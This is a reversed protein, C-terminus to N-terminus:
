GAQRRAGLADFLRRALEALTELQRRSLSPEPAPSAGRWGLKRLRRWLEGAVNGADTGHHSAVRRALEEPTWDGVSTNDLAESLRALVEERLVMAPLALNRGAAHAVYRDVHAQWGTEFAAPARTWQGDVRSKDPWLRSFRWAAVVSLGIALLSLVTGDLAGHIADNMSALMRNFRAFPSGEDGTSWDGAPDGVQVFSQTYLHVRDQSPRCTRRILARAFDLDDPLELMNNILVSPDAVAVFYGKGLRGEVVLAAGQSFAYTPPVATSFFAPHNAVLEPVNVSLETALALRAVPLAPNDEYHEAESLDGRLRRIQLTALAADSSGFDDAIVARGGAELFRRLRGADVTTRPYVFWLVDHGDLASWDLREDVRLNCGMGRAEEDLRSLGNWEHSDIRYDGAAESRGVALVLMFVHVYACINVRQSM